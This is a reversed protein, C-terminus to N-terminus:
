ESRPDGGLLRVRRGDADEAFLQFTREGARLEAWALAEHVSRVDSLRYEEPERRSWFVVRYSPSAVDDAAATGEVRSAKV